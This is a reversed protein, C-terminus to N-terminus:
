RGEAPSSPPPPAARLVLAGRLQAIPDLTELPLNESEVLLALGRRWRLRRARRMLVCAIRRAPPALTVLGRRLAM